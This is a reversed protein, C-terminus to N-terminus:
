RPEPGVSALLDAHNVTVRLKGAAAQALRRRSYVGAEAALSPEQECAAGVWGTLWEM